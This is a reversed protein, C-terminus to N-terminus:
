EAAEGLIKHKAILPHVENKKYGKMTEAYKELRDLGGEEFLWAFSELRRQNKPHEGLAWPDRTVGDIAYLLLSPDDRTTVLLNCLTQERMATYWARPHDLKAVYYAFVVEAIKQRREKARLEQARRDLLGALETQIPDPLTVGNTLLREVLASGRERVIAPLATM